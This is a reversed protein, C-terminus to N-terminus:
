PPGGQGGLHRPSGSGALGVRGDALLVESFVAKILAVATGTFIAYLAAALTAFILWPIYRKFYRGLFRGLSM